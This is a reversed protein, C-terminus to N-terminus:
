ESKSPRIYKKSLQDDIFDSVEKQEEPSLPILRGKKPKFTEKLDIAHDWPKRIPMRESEKKSFVKLYQHYTTPVLDAPKLDTKPVPEDQKLAFIHALSDQEESEIQRAFPPKGKLTQCTWPCRTMQIIGTTWDIEPNHHSLWTYGLIMQNKGLDTVEATVRERHEQFQIIIKACHTISGAANQTGDINYVPIPDALLILPLKMKQAYAKDIYIANARSDLLAKMKM